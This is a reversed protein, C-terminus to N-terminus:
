GFLYVLVLHRDSAVEDCSIHKQVNLQTGTVKLGRECWAHRRSHKRDKVNTQNSVDVRETQVRSM